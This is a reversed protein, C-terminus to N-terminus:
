GQGAPRSARQRWDTLSPEVLAMLGAGAMAPGVEREIIVTAATILLAAQELATPTLVAALGILDQTAETRREVLQEFTETPM